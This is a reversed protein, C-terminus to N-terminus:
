KELYICLSRLPRDWSSCLVFWVLFSIHFLFLTKKGIRNYIRKYNLKCRIARLIFWWTPMILAFLSSCKKNFTKQSKKRTIKRWDIQFKPTPWGKHLMNMIPWCGRNFTPHNNAQETVVCRDLGYLAFRLSLCGSCFYYGYVHGCVMIACQVGGPAGRFFVHGDCAKKKCDARDALWWSCRAFSSFYFYFCLIRKVGRCICWMVTATRCTASSPERRGCLVCGSLILKRDQAVLLFFLSAAARLRCLAFREKSEDGGTVRERSRTTHRSVNNSTIGFKTKTQCNICRKRIPCLRVNKKSILNFNM